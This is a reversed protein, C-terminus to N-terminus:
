VANGKLRRYSKNYRLRIFYLKNYRRLVLKKVAFM